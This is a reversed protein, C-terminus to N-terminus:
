KLYPALAHGPVKNLATVFSLYLETADEIGLKNKAAYQKLAKAVAELEVLKQSYKFELDTELQLLQEAQVDKVNLKRFEEPFENLAILSIERVLKQNNMQVSAKIADLHHKIRINMKNIGAKYPAVLETDIYNEIASNSDVIENNNVVEQARLSGVTIMTWIVLIFHKM